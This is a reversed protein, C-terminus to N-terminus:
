ATGAAAEDEGETGGLLANTLFTTVDGMVTILGDNWMAEGAANEEIAPEACCVVVSVLEATRVQRAAIRQTLELIGCGNAAEVAALNAYSPVLKYDKGGLTLTKEGRYENAM